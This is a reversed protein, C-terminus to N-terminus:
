RVAYFRRIQFLKWFRKKVIMERGCNQCKFLIKTKLKTSCFNNGGCLCVIPLNRCRKIKLMKLYKKLVDNTDFIRSRFWRTSDLFVFKDNNM